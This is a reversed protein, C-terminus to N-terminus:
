KSAITTSPHAYHPYPQSIQRSSLASNTSPALETMMVTWSTGTQKCHTYRRQLLDAPYVYGEVKIYDHSVIMDLFQLLSENGTYEAIKLDTALDPKKKKTNDQVTTTVSTVTNTTTADSSSAQTLLAAKSQIGIGGGPHCLDFAAKRRQLFSSSGGRDSLALCLCDLTLLMLTTSITPANLGAQASSERLHSPLHIYLVHDALQSLRSHAAGTVVVYPSDPAINMARIYSAMNILEETEGSHSCLLITDGNSVLGLDGHMAESPHLLGARIGLSHCTAVTKGVIHFSKGCAVFVIKHGDQLARLMTMYVASFRRKSDYVGNGGEHDDDCGYFSKNDIDRFHLFAEKIALSHRHLLDTFRHYVIDFDVDIDMSERTTNGIRKLPRGSNM